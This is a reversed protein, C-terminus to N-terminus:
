RGDEVPMMVGVRMIRPKTEAKAKAGVQDGTVLVYRRGDDLLAQTDSVKQVTQFVTRSGGWDSHRVRVKQGPELTRGQERFRTYDMWREEVANETIPRVADMFDRMKM